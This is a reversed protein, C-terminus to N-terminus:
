TAMAVDIAPLFATMGAAALATRVRALEDRIPADAGKRLSACLARGRAVFLDAWSLPEARTYDELRGVYVLAGEADRASLLAEIADRYFWLHNHGVSGRGLMAEGEALLSARETANEVVRSLASIVKPGCFQTGADRCIALAERLM